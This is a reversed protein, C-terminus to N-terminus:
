FGNDPRGNLPWTELHANIEPDDTTILCENDTNQRPNYEDLYEMAAVVALTMDTFVGAVSWPDDSNPDEVVLVVVNEPM